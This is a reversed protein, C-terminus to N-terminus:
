NLHPSVFSFLISTMEAWPYVKNSISAIFNTRERNARPECAEGSLMSPYEEKDVWPVGKPSGGRFEKM